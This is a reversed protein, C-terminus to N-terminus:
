AVEPSTQDILNKESTTMPNSAAHEPGRSGGGFLTFAWYSARWLATCTITLPRWGGVSAVNTAL